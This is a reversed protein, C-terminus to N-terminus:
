GPIGAGHSAGRPLQSLTAASRLFGFRSLLRLREIEFNAHKFIKSFQPM